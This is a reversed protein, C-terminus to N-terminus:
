AEGSGWQQTAAIRSRPSPSGSGVAPALPSSRRGSSETIEGGGFIVLGHMVEDGTGMQQCGARLSSGLWGGM